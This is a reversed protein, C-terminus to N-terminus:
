RRGGFSATPKTKTPIKVDLKSADTVLMDLDNATDVLQYFENIRDKELNEEDVDGSATKKM